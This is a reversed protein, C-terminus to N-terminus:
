WLGLFGGHDKRVFASKTMGCGVCTASVRHRGNATVHGKPNVTETKTKCKLCHFHSAASATPNSPTASTSHSASSSSM